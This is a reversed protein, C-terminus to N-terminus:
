QLLSNHQRQTRNLTTLLYSTTRCLGQSVARTQDRITLVEMTTEAYDTLMRGSYTTHSTSTTSSPGTRSTMTRILPTLLARRIGPTPKRYCRTGGHARVDWPEATTSLQEVWEMGLHMISSPCPTDDFPYHSSTPPIGFRQLNFLFRAITNGVWGSEGSM